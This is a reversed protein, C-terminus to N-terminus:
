LTLLSFSSPALYLILIILSNAVPLQLRNWVVDVPPSALHTPPPTWMSHKPPSTLYSLLVGFFCALFLSYVTHHVVWMSHNPPSTLYSLLVGFFCALLLSYVSHNLNWMSHNPPFTVSNHHPTWILHLHPSLNSLWGMCYFTINITVHQTFNHQQSDPAVLLIVSGSPLWGSCLFLPVLGLSGIHSASISSSALRAQVM